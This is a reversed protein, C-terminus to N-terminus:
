SRAVLDGYQPHRRIFEVIYPCVPVAKEGRARMLDLAGAVLRAGVGGGRLTVPVEAHTLVRVTGAQTAAAAAAAAVTAMATPGGARYHYDIFATGGAQPTLEFRSRAPNDVVAADDSM